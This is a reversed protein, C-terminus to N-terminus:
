TARPFARPVRVCCASLAASIDPSSSAVACRAHRLLLSACNGCLPAPPYARCIIHSREKKSPHKQKAKKGESHFHDLVRQAKPLLVARSARTVGQQGQLLKRAFIDILAIIKELRRRQKRDTQAAVHHIEIEVLRREERGSEKM